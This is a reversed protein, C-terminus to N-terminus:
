GARRHQLQSDGNLGVLFPNFPGQTSLHTDHAGQSMQFPAAVTLNAQRRIAAVLQNAWEATIAEGTVAERLIEDM